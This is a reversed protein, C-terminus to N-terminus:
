QEGNLPRRAAFGTILFETAYLTLAVAIPPAVISGVPIVIDENVVVDPTLRSALLAVFWVIAIVGTIWPFAETQGWGAENPHRFYTSRVVFVTAVLGWFWNLLAAPRLIVPEDGFMLEPAGLSTILVFLWIIVVMAVVWLNKTEM